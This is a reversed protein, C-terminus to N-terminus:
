KLEYVDVYLREAVKEYENLNDDAEVMKKILEVSEDTRCCYVFVSSSNILREDNIDEESTYPIFYIDKYEMLESSDNWIM